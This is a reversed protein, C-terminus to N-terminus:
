IEDYFGEVYKQLEPVTTLDVGWFDVNSLVANVGPKTAFFEIVKEDDNVAYDRASKHNYFAILYALSHSLTKPATGYKKSYDLISPLVRTKFKAVSNLSIDLLKHDIFPNNFRTLVSNAYQRLEAEDGDMASIIEDIGAGIFGKFYEDNVVDRVIDFGKLYGGLVSMTHTGNLLRVKIERYKSIDDTFTVDDFPIANKGQEDASIIFTKYPECSVSCLDNDEANHGTVIRDVLTNCFSCSNIYDVFDLKWLNAYKIICAKLNDGNNEILEVPLFTLPEKNANFREFLFKTLKGPFTNDNNEDFVIGAETTNSVVLRLDDSRFLKVIEDRQSVSDICRSVCNITKRTDVVGNDSNGRLIIDYTCGQNNLADIVRTNTRPQCIAVKVDRPCDEIYEEVFARLFNGEGFQLIQEM